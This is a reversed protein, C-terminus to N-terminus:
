RGGQFKQVRKGNVEAVYLAGQQDAALLHPMNFQGPASGAQGFRTLLKGELDYVAVRNGLGESVALKQDRTLALGYPHGTNTWQSVFKGEPTFIQVRGNERDAVYVQGRADVVVSHPLVFEGEGKGKKGWAGLYKGTHSFRVVRSNGYGDSVYVDGTPGFAVDTPKNFHTDDEGPQNKVGLTLLLKGEPTFKLVRHDANDTVWVNGEPDVRCGHPNTFTGAGWARLYKGERDFVLVPQPARQFVFVQGHADTTVASVAQTGYGPAASAGSPWGPVVRYAPTEARSLVPLALALAALLM